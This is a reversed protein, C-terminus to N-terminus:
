NKLIEIGFEMKREEKSKLIWLSNKNNFADINCTMPEIAISQRNDPTYVQFYPFVDAEQWINLTSRASQLTIIVKESHVNNLIFCDDFRTNKIMKLTSFNDYHNVKGTPIMRDDVDIKQCNPFKLKLYDIKQTDLKFYPHWGFGIPMSTKGTNKIRVRVSLQTKTLNYTVFFKFPFPYCPLGEFVGSLQVVAHNDKEEKKTVKMPIAELFGHLSNQNTTDNIPFQYTKEDFTYQGDKLRNPFPLLFHSKSYAKAEADDTSKYSDLVAITEQGNSLWLDALVGGLSPIIKLQSEATQLTIM